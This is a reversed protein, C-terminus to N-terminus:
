ARGCWIARNMVNCRRSEVNCMAMDLPIAWLNRVKGRGGMRRSATSLDEIDGGGGCSGAGGSAGGEGAVAANSTGKLAGLQKQVVLALQGCAGSIDDGM